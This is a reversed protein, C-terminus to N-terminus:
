AERLSEPAGRAPYHILWDTVDDLEFHTSRENHQCM